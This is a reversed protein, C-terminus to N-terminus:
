QRAATNQVEYCPTDSMRIIGEKEFFLGYHHRALATVSVVTISPLETVTGYGRITFPQSGAIGAIFPSTLEVLPLGADNPATIRWTSITKDSGCRFTGAKYDSAPAAQAAFPIAITALVIALKFVHTLM